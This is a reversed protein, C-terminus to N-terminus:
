RAEMSSLGDRADTLEKVVAGANEATLGDFCKRAFAEAAEYSMGNPSLRMELTVDSADPIRFRVCPLETDPHEELEALVQGIGDVHFLKAFDQVM